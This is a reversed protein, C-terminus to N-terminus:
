TNNNKKRLHKVFQIKSCHSSNHELASQRGVRWMTHVRYIRKLNTTVNKQEDNYISQYLTRITSTVTTLVNFPKHSHTDSSDINMYIHVYIHLKTQRDFPYHTLWSRACIHQFNWEYFRHKRIFRCLLQITMKM